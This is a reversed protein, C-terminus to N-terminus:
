NLLRFEAPDDRNAFDTAEGMAVDSPRGSAAWGNVVSPVRPAPRESGVEREMGDTTAGPDRGWAM